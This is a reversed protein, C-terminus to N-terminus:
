HKICTTLVCYRYNKNVLTNRHIYTASHYKSQVTTYTGIFFLYFRTLVNLILIITLIHRNNNHIVQEILQLRFM